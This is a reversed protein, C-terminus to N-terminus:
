EIIDFDYIMKFDHDYVHNEDPAWSGSLAFSLENHSGFWGWNMKILRIYPSSYSVVISPVPSPTLYGPVDEVVWMYLDEIRDIYNIYGDILFFHGLEVGLSDYRQALMIIPIDESLSNKVTDKQYNDWSSSVDYYSLANVLSSIYTTTSNSSYTSGSLRGMDAMLIYATNSSSAENTMSYWISSSNPSPIDFVYNGVYGTCNAYSPALSPVGWKNHLYYLMQAGAVPGCGAPAKHILSPSTYPCALNYPAGQGWLTTTLHPISDYVEPIVTTEIYVFHGIPLDDPIQKTEIGEGLTKCTIRSWYNVSSVENENGEDLPSHQEWRYAVEENLRSIWEKAGEPMDEYDYAGTESKALIFPGRKDSSIMEWGSDYEVVYSTLFGNYSLPTVSKVAQKNRLVGIKDTYCKLDAESVFLASDISIFGKTLSSYRFNERTGIRKPIDKSCCLCSVSFVILVLYFYDNKKM